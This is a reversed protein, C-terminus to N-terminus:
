SIRLKDLMALIDANPAIDRMSAGHHQYAIKGAKDVLVIAPMRGLKVWNVEQNYLKAVEHTPDPLGPYPLNKKEWYRRFAKRSDPGTVLVVADRKIFEKHENRLQAM